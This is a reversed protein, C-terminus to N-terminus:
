KSDYKHNHVIHIDFQVNLCKILVTINNTSVISVNLFM